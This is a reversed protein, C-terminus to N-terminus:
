LLFLLVVIGLGALFALAILLAAKMAGLVAWRREERNLVVPESPSERAPDEAPVPPRRRPLRPFLLPQRTVNSMDAITRGDDDKYSREKM